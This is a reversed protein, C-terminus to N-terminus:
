EFRGENKMASEVRLHIQGDEFFLTFAPTLFTWTYDVTLKEVDDPGGVGGVWTTTGSPLHSFSFGEDDLTLTPTAERMAWKISEERSLKEGPDDPDDVQNGTVAYRTAQSVGNELALYVYFLSAFDVISFTLLLLLPTILAAEVLNAGTETRFSAFRRKLSQIGPM